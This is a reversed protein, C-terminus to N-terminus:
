FRVPTYHQWFQLKRLFQVIPIIQLQYTSISLIRNSLLCVHSSYLSFIITEVVRYKDKIEQKAVLHSFNVCPAFSQSNAYLTSIFVSSYTTLYSYFKKVFMFLTFLM